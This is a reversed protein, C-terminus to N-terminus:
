SADIKKQIKARQKKAGVGEGLRRDLEALQKKPGLAAWEANRAEAEERKRKKDTTRDM